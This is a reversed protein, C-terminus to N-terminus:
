QLVGSRHCSSNMTLAQFPSKVTHETSTQNTSRTLPYTLFTMTKNWLDRTQIGNMNQNTTRTKRRQTRPNTQHQNTNPNRKPCTTTQDDSCKPHDRPQLIEKQKQSFNMKTSATTQRRVLPHHYPNTTMYDMKEQKNSKNGSTKKCITSTMMSSDAQKTIRNTSSVTNM